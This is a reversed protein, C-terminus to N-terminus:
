KSPGRALGLKQNIARRRSIPRRREDTCIGSLRQGIYSVGDQAYERGDVSQHACASGTLREFYAETGGRMPYVELDITSRALTGAPKDRLRLQAQCIDTVTNKRLGMNRAILRYSLGDAYM